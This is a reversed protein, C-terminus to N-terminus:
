IKQELKRLDRELARLQERLLLTVRPDSLQEAEEVACGLSAARVHFEELLTTVPGRWREFLEDIDANQWDLVGSTTQPPERRLLEQLGELQRARADMHDALEVLWAKRPATPELAELQSQAYRVQAALAMCQLRELEVLRVLRQDPVLSPQTMPVEELSLKAM